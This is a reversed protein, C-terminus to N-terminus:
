IINVKSSGSKIEVGVVSIITQILGEVTFTEMTRNKALTLSHLSSSYLLPVACVFEM